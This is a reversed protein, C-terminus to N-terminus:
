KLNDFFSRASARGDGKKPTQASPKKPAKPPNRLAAVDEARMQKIGEEGMYERLQAPTLSKLFSKMTSQHEERYIEAAQDVSLDYGHELAQSMYKALQVGVAPNNPLSHKTIADQIQKAYDAEYKSVEQQEREKARELKWKEIEAKQNELESREKEWRKKEAAEAKQEPTMQDAQYFEWLGSELYKRIENPPIGAEHLAKIPNKLLKSQWEKVKAAEDAAAKREAAAQQMKKNAASAHGYGKKLTELDVETEEGDIMLKYFQQAPSEGAPSAQGESPTPNQNSGTSQEVSESGASSEPASAQESM